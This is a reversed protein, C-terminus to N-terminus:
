KLAQKLNNQIAQLIDAFVLSRSDEQLIEHRLHPYSITHVQEFPHQRLRQALRTSSQGFETCPDDEGWLMLIPLATGMKRWESPDFARRMVHFMDEFYAIAIPYGCYPDAIYRQVNNPNLSLWDFPTQNPSFHRNFAEIQKRLISTHKTGKICKELKAIAYALQFLIPHKYPIGSLVLQSLPPHLQAYRLAIASGMSHGFLINPLGNDCAAFCQRISAFAAQLGQSGFDGLQGLTLGETGHGPLDFTTVNGGHQSLFTVFGHYRGSQEQMGHVVVLNFQAADTAPFHTPTM